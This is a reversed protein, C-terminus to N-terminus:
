AASSFCRSILMTPLRSKMERSYAFSFMESSKLEALTKTKEWNVHCRTISLYATERRTQTIGCLFDHSESSYQQNARWIELKTFAFSRMSIVTPYRRCSILGSSRSNSRRIIKGGFGGPESRHCGKKFYQLGAM